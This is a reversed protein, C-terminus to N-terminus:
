QSRRCKRAERSKTKVCPAAKIWLKLAGIAVLALSPEKEDDERNQSTDISEM